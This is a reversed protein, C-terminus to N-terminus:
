KVGSVLTDIDAKPVMLDLTLDTGAAAVKVNRIMRAYVQQDTRKSAAFISGFARLGDVTNKLHVAQEPKLVRAAVALTAGAATVDFAGSIYQISRLDDALMDRGLPLMGDLGAPTKAAFNLTAAPDRNLLATLESSPHSRSELTEKVRGYSGVVVSTSNYAAIAVEDTLGQVAKDVAAAIKSNSATSGTNQAADKASFIYVSRGAITEERYSGAAALKGVNVMAAANIDGSAIAVPDFDVNGPAVQKINIGVAVEDFKTLDIGTRNATANIRSLIEALASQNTSLITPLGEAFFRKNDFTVVADSAPLIPVLKAGRALKVARRSRKGRGDPQAALLTVNALLCMIAAVAYIRVKM